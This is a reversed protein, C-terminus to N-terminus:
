ERHTESGEALLSKQKLKTQWTEKLEGNFLPDLEAMNLLVPVDVKDVDEPELMSPHYLAAGQILKEQAALVAIKAGYCYGVAGVKGNKAAEQM